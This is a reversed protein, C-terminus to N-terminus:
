EKQQAFKVVGTKDKSRDFVVYYNNLLPLGIISQNPWQPLQSLLRFCAKDYNPTNIQWYTEPTCALQVIKEETNATAPESVFNFYVTPWQELKLENIDIGVLQASMEKFPALCQAFNANYAILDNIVQQYIEATLVIGGAGTDIIANTFYSKLHKQNLPEAIVPQSTGVQVSKLDVNYYVDHEVKISQFEGQYLDTQEEGGGLILLGKNLPDKALEDSPIKNIKNSHSKNVHIASRKSYFAFKNASLQQEELLTFYPTVDHEPYKWMLKKFSVLDESVEHSFPWPYSLAPTIKHETFYDSFDFSKNLHHYALGLIGDADGFTKSQKDSHVLAVPANSLNMSPSKAISQPHDSKHCHEHINISTFIVPGNWGGVGYNVEQVATSPTLKKDLNAQYTTSKVVLTSSGTDLLLNVPSKESGLHLTVSYDGQGFVNTIPIRLLTTM